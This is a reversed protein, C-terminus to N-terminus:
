ILAKPWDRPWIVAVLPGSLQWLQDPCSGCFTRVVAVFTSPQPAVFLALSYRCPSILLSSLWHTSVLASFSALEFILRSHRPVLIVILSDFHNYVAIYKRSTRCINWVYRTCRCAGLLHEGCDLIGCICVRRTRERLFSRFWLIRLEGFGILEVKKVVASLDFLLM